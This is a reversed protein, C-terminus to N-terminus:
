DHYFLWPRCQSLLMQFLFLFILSISTDCEAAVRVYGSRTADFRGVVVFPSRVTHKENSWTISGFLDEQFNTSLKFTVQFKLKVQVDVGAPASDSNLNILCSFNHPVDLAIMKIRSTDYGINCLFLGPQIPGTRSIEGAGIDYPTARSGTLTTIPAHLNNTQIATTMIASKIASPSWTPHQSKVTAALGSVHPCAMSTGSLIAFLPPERGPLTPENNNAPWAALIAVGPAAIDPKLLSQIGPTPGRSSFYGVVPAPKYNSIVVTPLITAVPDSNSKIYSLIKAGDEENVNAIPLIKYIPQVQRENNDILIMGIAGWQKKLIEFKYIQPYLGDKNECLVIKGKVKDGDLSGPICNRASDEAPQNSGLKASSGDILHYVPSKKLDSFNIGGGKIVQNGGLVVDAEFDRDITTAAVTLIWPAVNEVTGSSPGDNGAACAVIIGKEVAHFAGIAIPDTSFDPLSPSSGLSVSLVDVGDAIADDFAKLIASGPCKVPLSATCVRYMAIRSGPSGGRATGRAQGYYSAGSVPRGAATSAVHTGHGSEDQPTGFIHTGTNPDDYYRAGIVKRNCSSPTFNKGEMCRGKWHSPIPGMDADSFSESEPWIGSDLFGIITDAGISSSDTPSSPTPDIELATQELFDWTRTTGPRQAITKAEEEALRAALGLFGYSYTHLVVNKKAYILLIQM